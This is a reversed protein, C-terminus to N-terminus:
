LNMLVQTLQTLKQEEGGLKLKRLKIMKKLILLKLGKLTEKVKISMM